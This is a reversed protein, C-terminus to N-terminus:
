IYSAEFTLPFKVLFKNINTIGKEQWSKFYLFAYDYNETM